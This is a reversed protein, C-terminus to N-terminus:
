ISHGNISMGGPATIRIAGGSIEITCGGIKITGSGPIVKSYERSESDFREYATGAEAAYEKRYLGTSGEAPRLRDNWVPGLIVAASANLHGVLVLDSVRPMWYEWALFPLEGTTAGARDEYIVRATGKPYNISSIRGIRLVQPSHM